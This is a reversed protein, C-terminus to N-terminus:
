VKVSELSIEGGVGYLCPAPRHHHQLNYLALFYIAACSFAIATIPNSDRDGPVGFSSDAWGRIVEKLAMGKQASVRFFAATPSPKFLRHGEMRYLLSEPNGHPLEERSFALLAIAIVMAVLGFLSTLQFLPFCSQMLWVGSSIIHRHYGMASRSHSAIVSADYRHCWVDPIFLQVCCSVYFGNFSICCCCFSRDWSSIAKNEM